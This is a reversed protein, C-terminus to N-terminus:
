VGAKKKAEKLRAKIMMRMPGPKEFIAIERLLGVDHCKELFAKKADYELPINYPPFGLFKKALDNRPTMGVPPTEPIFEDDDPENGARNEDKGESAVKTTTGGQESEHEGVPVVPPVVDKSIKPAKKGTLLAEFVALGERIKDAAKALRQQEKSDIDNFFADAVETPTQVKEAEVDAAKQAQVKALEADDLLQIFHMNQLKKIEGSSSLKAYEFPESTIQDKELVLGVTAVDLQSGSINRIYLMKSDLATTM